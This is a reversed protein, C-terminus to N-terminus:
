RAMSRIISRLSARQGKKSARETFDEGAPAGDGGIGGGAEAPKELDIRAVPQIQL